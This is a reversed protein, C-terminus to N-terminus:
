KSDNNTLVVRLAVLECTFATQLTLLEDGIANYIIRAIPLQRERCTIDISPIEM